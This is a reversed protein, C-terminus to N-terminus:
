VGGRGQLYLRPYVEVMADLTDSVRRIDHGTYLDGAIGRLGVCRAGARDAKLDGSFEGSHTTSVVEAIRAPCVKTGHFYTFATGSTLVSKCM